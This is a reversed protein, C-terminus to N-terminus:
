SLSMPYLSMRGAEHAASELSLVGGSVQDPDRAGVIGADGSDTRFESIDM